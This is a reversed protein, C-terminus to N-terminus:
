PNASSPTASSPTSSSPTGSSPTGSSPTSSSPTGSSPTSSSPRNNVIVVVSVQQQVNINNLSTADVEGGVYKHVVTIVTKTVVTVVKNAATIVSMGNEVNLDVNQINEEAVKASEEAKAAVVEASKEVTKILEDKNKEDKFIKEASKNIVTKINEKSGIDKGSEILTAVQTFVEMSVATKNSSSSASYVAASAIDVIVQVKTQQALVLKAKEKEKKDTGKELVNIADFTTLEVSTDIKLSTKVSKEAEESSKGTTIVITQIMTTLSNVVMSGSALAKESIKPATFVGLFPEGTGVNVGGTAIFSFNFNFSVGRKNGSLVFTGTEDTAVCPKDGEDKKGDGNVDSCVTAGKVYDDIVKGRVIQNTPTTTPNSAGDDTSDNDNSSGCGILALAAFTSLLIKYNM